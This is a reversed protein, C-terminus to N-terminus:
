ITIPCFYIPFSCFYQSARLRKLRTFPCHLSTSRLWLWLTKKTLAKVFKCRTIKNGYMEKSNNWIYIYVTYLKKIKHTRRKKSVSVGKGLWRKFVAFFCLFSWSTGGTGPRRRRKIRSARPRWRLRLRNHTGPNTRQLPPDRTGQHKSRVPRGWFCASEDSPPCGMPQGLPNEMPQSQTHFFFLLRSHGGDWCIEVM